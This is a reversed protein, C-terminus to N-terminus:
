ILLELKKERKWSKIENERKRAKKLNNFKESYLLRVPRRVKTYHAGKKSNNHQFVRRELDNTCGTYLTNDNCKLIYTFYFMFFEIMADYQAPRQYIVLGMYQMVPRQNKITASVHEKFFRPQRVPIRVGIELVLVKRAAM